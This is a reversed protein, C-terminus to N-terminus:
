FHGPPRLAYFDQLVWQPAFGSPLRVRANRMSREKMPMIRNVLQSAISSIVDPIPGTSCVCPRWGQDVVPTASMGLRHVWSECYRGLARASHQPDFNVWDLDYLLHAPTREVIAVLMVTRICAGHNQCGHQLLLYTGLLLLMTPACCVRSGQLSHTLLKTQVVDACQCPAHSRRASLSTVTADVGDCLRM